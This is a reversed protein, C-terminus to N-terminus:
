KGNRADINEFHQWKGKKFKLADYSLDPAYFQYQGKLGEEIPSLHDFIIRKSKEDYNFSMSVNSSYEFILRNVTSKNYNIIPAGFKISGDKEFSLVEMLKKKSLRDNWDAGLLCYYTQGKRKVTILKYYHAGFWQTPKLLAMEPRKITSSADILETVEYVKDKITKHLIFAFYTYTGNSHPLEWNYIVFRKDEPALRAIPNLTDFIFNMANEKELFRKLIAKLKVNAALREEESKSLDLIQKSLPKLSDETLKFIDDSLAQANAYTNFVFLLVTLFLKYM